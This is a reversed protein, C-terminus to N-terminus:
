VCRWVMKERSSGSWLPHLSKTAVADSGTSSIISSVSAPSQAALEKMRSWAPGAGPVDSASEPSSSLGGPPLGESGHHPGIDSRDPDDTFPTKHNRVCADPNQLRM